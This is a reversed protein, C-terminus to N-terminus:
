SQAKLENLETDIETILEIIRIRMDKYYDLKVQRFFVSENLLLKFAEDAQAGKYDYMEIAQKTFDPNYYDEFDPNDMEMEPGGPDLRCYKLFYPMKVTYTQYTPYDNELRLIAAQFFDYFRAIDKRLKINSLLGVDNNQLNAFTSKHFEIILPIGLANNMDIPYPPEDLDSQLFRLLKQEETIFKTHYQINFNIDLTDLSMDQKLNELITIEQLRAKRAENANNIQLAILIGIVVLVIEGIAYFFYRGLRKEVLLRQRIRRLFKIM